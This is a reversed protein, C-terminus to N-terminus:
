PCRGGSLGSGAGRPVLPVGHERALRVLAQVEERTEPLVVALPAEGVLIADYRYPAREAPALLVRGGFLAKLESALERTLGPRVPM